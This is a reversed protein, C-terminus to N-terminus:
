FDIKVDPKTVRLQYNGDDFGWLKGSITSGLAPYDEPFRMGGEAKGFETVNILVPFGHGSDFFVGFPAQIFISGTLISGLPLHQKLAEWEPTRHSQKQFSGDAFPGNELIKWNV